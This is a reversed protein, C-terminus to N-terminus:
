RPLMLDCLAVCRVVTPAFPPGPPHLAARSRRVFFLRMSVASAGELLINPLQKNPTWQLWFVGAFAEHLGSKLGNRTGLLVLEYM